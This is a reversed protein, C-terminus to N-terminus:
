ILLSFLRNISFFTNNIACTISTQALDSAKKGLINASKFLFQKRQVRNENWYPYYKM